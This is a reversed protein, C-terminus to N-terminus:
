FDDKGNRTKREIRCFLSGNALVIEILQGISATDSDTIVDKDPFTRTISYGRALVSIPNLSLLRGRLEKLYSRHGSFYTTILSKFLDMQHILTIKYNNVLLIPNKNDLRRKLWSTQEQRAKVYRNFEKYLRSSYDDLRLKADDLKKKPHILRKILKEIYNFHQKIHLHLRLCLRKYLMQLREKLESKVPVAFEGAVSPTPARLDAVFDAITFDTEHGIASIIPIKSAFISRAVKESNFAALDELSGGGRALIAVDAKNRNNILEIGSAIEDEAGGGQVKVPFIEIPIDGYRRHIVRIMDHVVSGTSSTILCITDPLFPIPKKHQADFLGEESLKAKLKEFAAQAAGLGSPELYELIIQYTGRPEYVSIRGLGTINMGDEPICKLSRNQGKFMVANIQAESDKLTFYYHGSVPVRFNSIEGSIWILAFHDELLTKINQTLQSVTFIKRDTINKTLTM